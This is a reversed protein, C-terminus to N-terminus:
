NNSVNQDKNFADKFWQPFQPDCSDSIRNPVSQWFEVIANSFNNLHIDSIELDAYTVHLQWKSYPLLHRLYQPYNVKIEEFSAGEGHKYVNVILRCQNLMAYFKERSANWGLYELLEFLQSFNMSWIKRKVNEGRHWHRIQRWLWDRVDKEWLHFMGTIVNLRTADRMDSLLGYYEVAKDNARDYIAAPDDRDPDFNADQDQIWHETLKDSESEIDGFQSLLRIESQSCYFAHRKLLFSRYSDDLEFYVFDIM